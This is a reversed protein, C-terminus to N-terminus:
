EKARTRALQFRGYQVLSGEVAAVYTGRFDRENLGGRLRLTVGEGLAGRLECWGGELVGTLEGTGTLPAQTVLRARVKGDTVELTLRAPASVDATTNTLEGVLVITQPAAALAITTGLLGFLLRLSKM